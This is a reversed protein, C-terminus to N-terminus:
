QYKSLELQYGILYKDNANTTGDLIMYMYAGSIYVRYWETYLNGSEYYSSYLYGWNPYGAVENIIWSGYTNGTLTGFNYTSSVWNGGSGIGYYSKLGGLPVNVTDADYLTNLEWTGLFRNELASIQTQGNYSNNNLDFGNLGVVIKDTLGDGNIDQYMSLVLRDENIKTIEWVEAFKRTAADYDFAIAKFAKDVAWTGWSWDKKDSDYEWYFGNQDINFFYISRLGLQYVENSNYYTGNITMESIYWGYTTTANTSEQRLNGGLGLLNNLDNSSTSDMNTRQGSPDQVTVTGSSTTTINTPSTRVTGDGAGVPESSRLNSPAKPKSEAVPTVITEEPKPDEKKKGCAYFLVLAALLCITKIYHLFTPKM